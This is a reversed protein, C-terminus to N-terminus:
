HNFLFDKLGNKGKNLLILVDQKAILLNLLHINGNKTLIMKNVMFLQQPLMLAQFKTIMM